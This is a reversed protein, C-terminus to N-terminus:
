ALIAAIRQCDRTIQAKLRPLGDFRMQDRIFGIIQLSLEWDYSFELLTGIIHAEMRRELGNVTPRAGVNLAAPLRRGDPLVAFAAYVGDAPPLLETLLNCTPFGITRGVQDGRKVTGCLEYSRGLLRAADGVRGAILLERIATSSARVVSLDDLAVEVPAEIHTQFGLAQALVSLTGSTGRGGKGFRFDNGEVIHSPRYTSILQAIFADPEQSLFAADPVLRLVQNAGQARLWRERQAFTSIPPPAVQPRLLTLPHPDFALAVVQGADGVLARARRVLAAHGLHVGDFNGITLATTM